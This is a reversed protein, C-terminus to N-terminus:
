PQGPRLGVDRLLTSADIAANGQVRVSGVVTRQGESVVLRVTVPMSAANAAGADPEVASQVRVAAFGRRRYLDEWGAGDADLAAGSFPQGIRTRLRLEFEALPVSPNGSVDLHSVRYLPGRKVAFTLLLEAGSTERTHPAAADRYGQAHLAEEIRHSADE